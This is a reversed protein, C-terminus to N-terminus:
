TGFVGLEEGILFKTCLSEKQRSKVERMKNRITSKSFNMQVRMRDPFAQQSVLRFQTEKGYKSM